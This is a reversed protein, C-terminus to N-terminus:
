TCHAYIDANHQMMIKLGLRTGEVDVFLYAHPIFFPVSSLPSLFNRYSFNSIPCESPREDSSKKTELRPKKATGL